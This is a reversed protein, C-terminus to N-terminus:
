VASFGWRSNCLLMHIVVPCLRLGGPLLFVGDEPGDVPTVPAARFLTPHLLVISFAPVTPLSGCLSRGLFM